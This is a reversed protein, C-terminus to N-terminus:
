VGEYCSLLLEGFGEVSSRPNANVASQIWLKVVVVNLQRTVDTTLVLPEWVM